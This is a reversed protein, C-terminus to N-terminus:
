IKKMVGTIITRNLLNSKYVYDGNKLIDIIKVNITEGLLYEFKEESVSEYTLNYECPSKWNISYIFESNGNKEIQRNQTRTIITNPYLNNSYKFTGIKFIGFNQCETETIIKNEYKKNIFRYTFKNCNGNLRSETSYVIKKNKEIIEKIRNQNKYTTKEPIINVNETKGYENVCFNITLCEISEVDSVFLETTKREQKNCSIILISLILLTLKIRM